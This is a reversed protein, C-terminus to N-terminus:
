LNAVSGGRKVRRIRLKIRCGSRVAGERKCSRVADEVRDPQLAEQLIDAFDPNMTTKDQDLKALFVRRQEDIYNAKLKGVIQERVEAFELQRTPHRKVLRIIHYGFQTQVVPSIENEKELSKVAEVFPKAYKSSTADVIYGKNLKKGGDDSYKEVLEDFSAPNAVAEARVKDALAKTELDLRGAIPAILVHEVDVTAPAIYDKRNATYEERAAQEMSPVKTSEEFWRLYEKALVERTAYAIQEEVVPDQDLKQATALQALQKARLVETIMQSIRDPSDLFGTRRAPPIRQMFGDIDALTVTQGGQSVIQVDADAAIASNLASLTIFAVSLIKLIM